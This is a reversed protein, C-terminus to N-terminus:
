VKYRYLNQVRGVRSGLGYMISSDRFTGTFIASDRIPFLISRLERTLQKLVDFKPAFEAIVNEFGNKDMHGLKTDAIEAYTGMYWRRLRSKAFKRAKKSSQGDNLNDHGHRICMWVLVYFFSELDHRYTHGKGQLVQ